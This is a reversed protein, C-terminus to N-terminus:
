KDMMNVQNLLHLVPDAEDLRNRVYEIATLKVRDQKSLAEGKILKSIIVLLVRILYENKFGPEHFIESLQYDASKKAYEDPLLLNKTELDAVFGNSSTLGSVLQPSHTAILFHCGYYNSFAKQLIGIFEAQWRPHLSIEPEDICILSGNKIVGAIGLFMLLMCQQGSSAHSLLIKDKSNKQYLYLKAVKLLGSNILIPIYKIFDEIATSGWWGNRLDYRLSVARNQSFGQTFYELGPLIDEEFDFTHDDNLREFGEKWAMVPDSRAFPVATSARLEIQISPLFGIYEFIYSLNNSHDSETETKHIISAIAKSIISYPSSRFGSLGLYHYDLSLVTKRHLMEPQPFRDFRSNSVAVVQSPATFSDPTEYISRIEGADKDPFIYNNVIKGLSRTKGSANRGVLMTYVNERSNVPRSLRLLDEDILIKEIQFKM